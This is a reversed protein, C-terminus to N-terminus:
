SSRKWFTKALYAGGIVIFLVPWLKVGGILHDLHLKGLVGVTGIALLIAIGLLNEGLRGDILAAVLMAAAIVFLIGPWWFNFLAIVGLGVLFVGTFAHNGSISRAM